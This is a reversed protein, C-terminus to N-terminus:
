PLPLSYKTTLQTLYATLLIDSDGNALHELLLIFSKFDSTGLTIAAQVLNILSNFFQNLNQNTAQTATTQSSQTNTTQNLPYPAILQNLYVTLLIDSDNHSLLELSDIFSRLDITGLNIAAQTLAIISSQFSTLAASHAQKACIIQAQGQATLLSAPIQTNSPINTNSGSSSDGSIDKFIDNLDNTASNIDGTIDKIITTGNSIDGPIDNIIDANVHNFFGAALLIVIFLFKRKQNM